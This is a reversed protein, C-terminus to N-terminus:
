KILHHFEKLDRIFDSEDIENSAVIMVLSNASFNELKFWFMKPILIGFYARNLFYTFDEQGDNLVINFSGTLAVVLQLTNRLAYGTDYNGSKIDYIWHIRKIKFPLHNEEEIFSLNGRHDAIKPFQILSPDM